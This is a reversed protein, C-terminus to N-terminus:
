ESNSDGEMQEPTGDARLPGLDLKKRYINLARIVQAFAADSAVSTAVARREAATGQFSTAGPIRAIADPCLETLRCTVFDPLEGYYHRLFVLGTAVCPDLGCRITCQMEFIGDLAALIKPIARGKDARM